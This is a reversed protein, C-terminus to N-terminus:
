SARHPCHDSTDDTTDPELYAEFARRALVSLTVGERKARVEADHLLETPVRFQIRPSHSGDRSLSKRGPILNRARAAARGEKALQEALEPTLRRGDELRVDETELDVDSITADHPVAYRHPGSSM